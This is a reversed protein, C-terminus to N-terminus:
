VKSVKSVQYEHIKSFSHNESVFWRMKQDNDIMVRKKECGLQKLALAIQMEEAKRLKANDGWLAYKWVDTITFGDDMRLPIMGVMPNKLWSAITDEYASRVMKAEQHAVAESPYEYVSEEKTEVRYLAEAYLQDRNAKLWEFDVFDRVVEVPYFRRNGSEDKLYEDQNTSMAFVCRRPVDKMVRGYPARYTDVQTSIMAKMNKTETRSLTEGESFEVILKGKFQLFFDKNDAKLTTELHWDGGIISLSTSKGCGQKGELILVTDFKCGPEIIRKVIGKWFNSGVAIHYADSPCGYAKTLWGDLRPVKDWKISRLYDVARDYSHARCADNIADIVMEKGVTRFPSYMASIKRQIPTFDNDDVESWRGDKLIEAKQTWEDYRFRGTFDPHNELIRFINETCRNYVKQGQNGTTSLLGLKELPYERAEAKADGGRSDFVTKKDSMNNKESKGGFVGHVVPMLVILDQKGLTARPLDDVPKQRFIASLKIRKSIRVTRGGSAM